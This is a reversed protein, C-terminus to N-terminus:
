QHAMIMAPTTPPRTKADHFFVGAPVIATSLSSSRRGIRPSTTRLDATDRKVRVRPVSIEDPTDIRSPRSIVAFVDPLRTMWSAIMSDRADIAPPSVMEAGSLFDFTKGGITM